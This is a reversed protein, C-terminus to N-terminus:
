KTGHLITRGNELILFASGKALGPVCITAKERPRLSTV